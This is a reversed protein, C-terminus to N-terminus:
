LLIRIIDIDGKKYIYQFPPPYFIITNHLKKWLLGIINPYCYNCESIESVSFNSYLGDAFAFLQSKQRATDNMIDAFLLPGLICGQPIASPEM